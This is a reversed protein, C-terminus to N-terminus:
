KNITPIDIHGVSIQNSVSYEIFQDRSQVSVNLTYASGGFNRYQNKKM